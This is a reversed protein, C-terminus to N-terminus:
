PVLFRKLEGSADDLRDRRLSYYSLGGEEILTVLGAARLLALHHKITPKSLGLREAIETLYWERDRLLRLIRLRTEDGLARHLRLVSAPPAFPDDADLAADSIPYVFVRADDVGFAFNYPRALYSPALVIRRVGPESLWRVGNTTREVLDAPALSARDGARLEVDRRIMVAVRAEIEQYRPLWTEMLDAMEGLLVAPEALLRDLWAHHDDPWDTKILAAAEDDGALARALLPQRDLDRLMDGLVHQVFTPGDITRLMRVYSAADTAEPHSVALSTAFISTERTGMGPADVPIEARANALWARDDASLGESSGVESALSIGFDFATRVDFEVTVATGSGVHRLMPRGTAPDAISKRDRVPSM